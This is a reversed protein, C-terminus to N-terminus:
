PNRRRQGTETWNAPKAVFRANPPNAASERHLQCRWINQGRSSITGLTPAHHRYTVIVNHITRAEVNGGEKRLESMLQGEARQQLHQQASAGIRKFGPVEMYMVLGDPRSLRVTLQTGDTLTVKRKSVGTIQVVVSLQGPRDGPHNLEL